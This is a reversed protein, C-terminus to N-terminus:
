RPAANPQYPPVKQRGQHRRIDYKLVGMLIFFYVPMELFLVYPIFKLVFPVLGHKFPSSLLVFLQEWAAILIDM